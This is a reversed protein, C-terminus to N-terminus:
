EYRLTEAPQVSAARRSPFYGALLGIAGLLAVTLSALPLSFTPRGLFELAESESQSQLWALGQILGVGLTIGLLGGLCTLLLAEVVFPGMVFSRRAGLAMQVGIEKTREKVVAYMINAVGVGGILLTLGGIIGLFIEIGILINRTIEQGKLTDWMPLAREDTPDFRYKAGLVEHFRRKAIETLEPAAPQFVINSLYRRGFLAEFTSLPIVAHLKDPGGYTGMQLKEQMVGVVTFPTRHVEVTKGVPPEDGFLQEALENGLFIVRRKLTQDWENLFRGGPQPFHNRLEGYAPHTGIVAKNLSSQKYSILRWTRMEGCAASIEPISALIRGVDEPLFRLNRGAPFGAFEKGTEAAWVIVIGDGIGRNSRTLNRKLGEGFSLLLVISITGWTIAMVTLIMRKRQQRFANCFLRWTMRLTLV